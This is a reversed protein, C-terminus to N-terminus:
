YGIAKLIDNATEELYGVQGKAEKTGWMPHNVHLRWEEVEVTIHYNYEFDSGDLAYGDGIVRLRRIDSKDEMDFLHKRTVNLGDEVMNIISDMGAALVDELTQEQTEM